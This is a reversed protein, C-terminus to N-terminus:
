NDVKNRWYGSLLQDVINDHRDISLSYCSDIGLEIKYENLYLPDLPYQNGNGDMIVVQGSKVLSLFISFTGDFKEQIHQSVQKFVSYKSESVFDGTLLDMYCTNLSTPDGKVMMYAYSEELNTFIFKELKEDKLDVGFFTSLTSSSLEDDWDKAQMNYLFWAVIRACRAFILKEVPNMDLALSMFLSKFSDVSSDSIMLIMLSAVPDDVVLDELIDDVLQACIFTKELLIRQNTNDLAFPNTRHRVEIAHVEYTLTNVCLSTRGETSSFLSNLYVGATEKTPNLPMFCNPKFNDISCQYNAKDQICDPHVSHPCAIISKIKAPKMNIFQALYTYFSKVPLFLNEKQACIMCKQYNANVVKHSVFPPPINRIYEIALNQAKTVISKKEQLVRPSSPTSVKKPDLVHFIRDAIRGLYELMQLVSTTERGMYSISLRVFAYFNKPLAKALEDLNKAKISCLNQFKCYEKPNGPCIEGIKVILGLCVNCTVPDTRGSCHITNSLIQFILAYLLPSCLVSKLDIQSPPEVWEPFPLLGTGQMLKQLVAHHINISPVYPLVVSWGSSNYLEFKNTGPIKRACSLFDEIVEKNNIESKLGIMLEDLDHVGNLLMTIFVMRRITRIDNSALSRDFILGCIFSLVNFEILGVEYDGVLNSNLGFTNIIMRLFADKDEIIGLMTQVLCFAPRYLLHIMNLRIQSNMRNSVLEDLTILQFTNLQIFGLVRLPLLSWYIAFDDYTYNNSKALKKFTNILNNEEYLLQQYALFHLSLSFSTKVNEAAFFRHYIILDDFNEFNNSSLQNLVNKVFLECISLNKVKLKALVTVLEHAEDAIQLYEIRGFGPLLNRISTDLVFKGEIKLIINIFKMMFDTLIKQDNINLLINQLIMSIDTLIKSLINPGLMGTIYDSLAMHILVNYSELLSSQWDIENIIEKLVYQRYCVFFADTITKFQIFPSVDNGRRTNLGLKSLVMTIKPISQISIKTFLISFKDIKSFLLIFKQFLTLVKYDYTGAKLIYSSLDFNEVLVNTILVFIQPSRYAWDFIWNYLKIASSSEFSSYFPIYEFILKLVKTFKERHDNQIEFNQNTIPTHFHCYGSEKFMEQDGCDCTGYSVSCLSVKHHKHDSNKFCELCICSNDAKQCDYCRAAITGETWVTMCSIPISKSAYYSKLENITKYTNDCLYENILDIAKAVDFKMCRAIREFNEDM